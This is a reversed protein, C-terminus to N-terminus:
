SVVYVYTTGVVKSDDLVLVFGSLTVKSSTISGQLVDGDVTNSHAADLTINRVIKSLPM